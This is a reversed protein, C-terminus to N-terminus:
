ALQRQLDSRGSDGANASKQLVIPFEDTHARDGGDIAVGGFRAELDDVVQMGDFAVLAQAQLAAERAGLGGDIGDGADPAAGVPVFPFNEAEEAESEEVM